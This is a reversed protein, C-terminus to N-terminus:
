MKWKATAPELSEEVLMGDVEVAPFKQDALGPPCHFPNIPPVKESTVEIRHKSINIRGLRGSLISQFKELM